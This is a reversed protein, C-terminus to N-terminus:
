RFLSNSTASQLALLPSFLLPITTPITQLRWTQKLFCMVLAEGCLCIPCKGFSRFFLFARLLMSDRKNTSLILLSSAFLARPNTVRPHPASRMYFPKSHEDDQKPRPTFKPNQDRKRNETYGFTTYKILERYSKNKM